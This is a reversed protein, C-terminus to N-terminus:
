TKDEGLSYKQRVHHHILIGDIDHEGRYKDDACNNDLDRSDTQNM